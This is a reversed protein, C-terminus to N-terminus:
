RGCRLQALTINECAHTLFETWPPTQRLAHQSVGPVLCVGGSYVGWVLCVGQLLGGEWLLCGGGRPASVGGSCVCGGLFCVAVYPWHAALVCGVPICEQKHINRSYFLVWDFQWYCYNITTKLLSVAYSCCVYIHSSPIWLEAFYPIYNLFDSRVHTLSFVLQPLVQGLNFVLFQSM